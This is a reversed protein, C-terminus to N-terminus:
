YTFHILLVMGWISQSLILSYANQRRAFLFAQGIAFLFLLFLQGVVQSPEFRLITNPIHFVLFIVAVLLVQNVLGWHRYKDQVVLMIWSFFFLTEWFGTLLSLLFEHWFSPAQFLLVTEVQGGRSILSLLAAVFGYTGGFALGQLLGPKLKKSALTDAIASFGLVTTYLWVPVGFFIAKGLSEDFWVPFNFFARYGIWLVLSVLLLPFFLGHRHQSASTKSASVPKNKSRKSLPM